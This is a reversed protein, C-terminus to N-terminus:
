RCNSKGTLFNHTCCMISVAVGVSTFCGWGTPPYGFLFRGAICKPDNNPILGALVAGVSIGVSGGSTGCGISGSIGVGSRVGGTVATFPVLGIVVGISFSISRVMRGQM